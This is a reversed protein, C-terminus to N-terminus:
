RLHCAAPVRLRGASLEKPDKSAPTRPVVGGVGTPGNVIPISILESVSTQIAIRHPAGARGQGAQGLILHQNPM